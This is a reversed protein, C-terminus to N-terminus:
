HRCAHSVSAKYESDKSPYCVHFHFMGDARRYNELKDIISYSTPDTYLDPTNADGFGFPNPQSAVPTEAIKITLNGQAVAVSPWTGLGILM